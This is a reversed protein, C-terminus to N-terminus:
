RRPPAGCASTATATVSGTPHSSRRSRGSPVTAAARTAPVYVVPATSRAAIEDALRTKGVGSGGMVVAGPATPDVLM